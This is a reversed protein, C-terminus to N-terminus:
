ELDAEKLPGPFYARKLLVIVVFIKSVNNQSRM